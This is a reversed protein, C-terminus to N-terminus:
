VREQSRVGRRPPLTLPRAKPVAPVAHLAGPDDVADAPIPSDPYGPPQHTIQPPRGAMFWTDSTKSLEGVIQLGPMVLEVVEPHRLTLECIAEIRNSLEEVLNPAKGSAIINRFTWVYRPDRINDILCQAGHSYYKDFYAAMSGTLPGPVFQQLQAEANVVFSTLQVLYEEAGTPLLRFVNVLRSMRAIDPNDELPALAAKQLSQADGLAQFHELLKVGIELKFYSTLLELFRALGDLGSVSLRKADALNVLIPRLGAQLLEKPLKQQNEISDRLGEHAVEVIEPQQSYVHKFYVQIIRSRTQALAAQTTFTPLSMAARLLKLCAIRLAKIWYEQKQTAPKIILTEDGVDALAIVEHSLRVFEETTDIPSPQVHILWTVADINAVQMAFPLARLPKSFIPGASSDLLKSKAPEVILDYVSRGTAEALTAISAQACQRSALSQSNLEIVFTEVLKTLRPTGPNENTRGCRLIDQVLESVGVATKPAQIPADRLCFLLARVLEVELDYLLGRNVDVHKVITRIAAVGAMKRNWDEEHCLTCFRHVFTQLGRDIARSTDQNANSAPWPGLTRFDAMIVALLECLGDRESLRCRALTDVFCDALASTLPLYRKRAMEGVILDIDTKTDVRVMEASFVRRCFNRVFETAKASLKPHQCALFLRRMAKIFTDNNEPSPGNQQDALQDKSYRATSVPELVAMMTVMLIQLSDEAHEAVGEDLAITATNVVSGLQLQHSKGEIFIPVSIDSGVNKYELLNDVEQFRRNRGGLKGLIRIASQAHSRNAPIPKLLRHLAAMLERLIPGMTPDLFDATLNDICLELTRLGQSVSDPGARLAHVLPKM